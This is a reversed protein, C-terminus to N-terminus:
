TGYDIAVIRGRYWGFSDPKNEVPVCYDKKQSFEAFEEASMRRGLPQCRPMVVLFGGPINWLVPCLEAWGVRSFQAEQMNALLGHLCLRWDNLRPMKLAYSGVLFVCRTAGSKFQIM